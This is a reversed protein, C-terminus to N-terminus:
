SSRAGSCAAAKNVEDRWIEAGVIAQKGNPSLFGTLSQGFGIVIPKKDQASAPNSALVASTALALGAAWTCTRLITRLNM